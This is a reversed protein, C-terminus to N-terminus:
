EEDSFLKTNISPLYVDDKNLRDIRKNKALTTLQISKPRFALAKRGADSLKFSKDDEVIFGNNTGHFILDWLMKDDLKNEIAFSRLSDNRDIVQM